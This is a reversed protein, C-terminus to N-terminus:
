HHELHVRSIVETLSPCASLSLMQTLCCLRETHRNFPDNLVWGLDGRPDQHGRYTDREEATKINRILARGPQNHHIYISMPLAHQLLTLNVLTRWVAQVVLGIGKM